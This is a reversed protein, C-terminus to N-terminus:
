AAVRHSYGKTNVLLIAKAKETLGDMNAATAVQQFGKRRHVAVHHTNVVIVVGTAGLKSCRAEVEEMLLHGPLEKHSTIALNKRIKKDAAFAGIYALLHQKRLNALEVPFMEEAPFNTGVCYSITGVVRKGQKAVLTTKNSKFFGLFMVWYKKLSEATFKTPLYGEEKYTKALLYFALLADIFSAKQVTITEM